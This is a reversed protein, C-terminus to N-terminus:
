KKWENSQKMMSKDDSERILGKMEESFPAFNLAPLPSPFVDDDEHTVGLDQLDVEFQDTPNQNGQEKEKQDHDM